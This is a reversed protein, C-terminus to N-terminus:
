VHIIENLRLVSEKDFPKNFFGNMGSELCLKKVQSTDAATCAYIQVNNDYMRIMKTADIGNCKPMTIDMIIINIKHLLCKNIADNGDIAKYYKYPPPIILEKKLIYEIVTRQIFEDDVILISIPNM